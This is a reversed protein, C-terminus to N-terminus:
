GRVWVAMQSAGRNAWAYYPIATFAQGSATEGRLVWVGELLDSRREACV